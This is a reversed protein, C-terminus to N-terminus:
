AIMSVSYGNEVIENWMEACLTHAAELSGNNMDIELQKIAHVYKNTM